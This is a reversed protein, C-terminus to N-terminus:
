LYRVQIEIDTDKFIDIIYGKVEEWNLRDLGCGILPMGLKKIGLILCQKKLQELALYISSNTPKGFSYRKTILNFISIQNNSVHVCRPEYILGSLKIKTSTRLWSYKRTLQKAIGAGMACDHAVCHVLAYESTLSLLNGREENLTM